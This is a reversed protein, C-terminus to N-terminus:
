RRPKFMTRELFQASYDDAWHILKVLPNKYTLKNYEEESYDGYKVGYHGMHGLIMEKEVNNLRIYKILYKVSAKGHGDTGKLVKCVDHLLCAITINSELIPYVYRVPIYLDRFFSHVKLSHDCLGGEFNNHHKKSAAIRFFDLVELKDLLLSIGKRHTKKLHTCFIEKNRNIIRKTPIMKGGNKILKETKKM